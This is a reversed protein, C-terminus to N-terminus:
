MWGLCIWVDGPKSGPFVFAGVISSAFIGKEKARGYVGFDYRYGWYVFM